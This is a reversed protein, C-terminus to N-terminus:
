PKTAPAPTPTPPRQLNNIWNGGSQKYAALGAEGLTPMLRTVAESGLASLQLNRQDPTLGRDSYIARTRTTIDKQVAVIDATASPPLQLRTVVANATLYNPDTKLQYEAFRDPALLGEIQKNLDAQAATRNRTQEATLLDPSGFRADLSQQVKFLARFEDESPNFAVLQNRLQSATSSSRLDYEFLEDPTLLKAIDARKEQELYALKARDEPLLINQASNRVDSMLESYDSTIRDLESMKGAALDGGYQKAQKARAYASLGTDAGLQQDLAEKEERQLQQRMALIKAGEVTNMSTGRWWPQASILAALAKHRDAFRDTILSALIARQLSPPFGEERLRAAAAAFDGTSLDTWTDAGPTDANAAKPGIKTQTAGVAAFLAPTTERGAPNFAFYCLAANAALSGVFLLYPLKM